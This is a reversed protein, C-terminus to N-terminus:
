AARGFHHEIVEGKLSNFAKGLLFMSVPSRQLARLFAGQDREKFRLWEKEWEEFLRKVRKNKNFFLVGTNLMLHHYHGLTEFTYEKDRGTLSWLIQGERNPWSPVMVVDFGSQLLAFGISIDGLVRTDADLLLTYTYPSTHYARTKAL